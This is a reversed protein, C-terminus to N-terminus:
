SGRVKFDGDSIMWFPEDWNIALGFDAVPLGRVVAMADISLSLFGDSRSYSYTDKIELELELRASKLDGLAPDFREIPYYGDSDIHYSQLLKTAQAENAGSLLLSFIALTLSTVKM